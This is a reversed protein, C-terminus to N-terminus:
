ITCRNTAIAKCWPMCLKKGKGKSQLSQGNAVSVGVSVTVGINGKAHPICLEEAIIRWIKEAVNVAGDLITLPM